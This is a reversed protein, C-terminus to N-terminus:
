EGQTPAVHPLFTATRRSRGSGIYEISIGHIGLEWDFQNRIEQFSHLLSVSCSLNSSEELRIPDFRPDKSASCIKISLKKVMGKSRLIPCPQKM